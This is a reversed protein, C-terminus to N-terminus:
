PAAREIRPVFLGFAAAKRDRIGGVDREALNSELHLETRGAPFAILMLDLPEEGEDLGTRTVARLTEGGRSVTVTEGPRLWLAGWVMYTGPEAVVVALESGKRSWAFVRGDRMETRHIGGGERVDAVRAGVAPSLDWAFHLFERYAGVLGPEARGDRLSAKLRGTQDHIKPFWDSALSEERHRPWHAVNAVVLLVLVMDVTRRSLPDLRGWSWHLQTMLGFVLLAQFPWPYYWLRHDVWDYVQPYRMIMAAFMFVQSAAFLGVILGVLVLGRRGAGSAPAAPEDPRAAARSQAAVARWLSVGAVALGVGFLWPRFGGFLTAAYGPLLEVAKVYFSLDTLKRMPMRQYAFRPSYGNIAQILAPGLWYNYVTSVALGLLAGGLLAMGRREVVVVLGLCVALVALYFFGQRDFASMLCGGAAVVVLDVWAPRPAARAADGLRWYVFFLVALMVPVLLPKTARYFLGMTTLFVYNTLLVLLLLGRTSAPLAPFARSSGRAFVAWTLLPAYLASLPVFVVIGARLLGRWVQADLLDLAYSLERAQYTDFDNGHPDFVKQIPGRGDLYNHLFVITEEELTGGRWFFAPAAIAALLSASLLFRPLNLSLAAHVPHDLPEDGHEV